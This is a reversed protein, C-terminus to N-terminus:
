CTSSLMCLACLPRRSIQFSAVTASKAPSAAAHSVARVPVLPWWDKTVTMLSLLGEQLCLSAQVMICAQSAMAPMVPCLLPAGLLAPVLLLLTNILLATAALLVGLMILRSQLEAETLNLQQQRRLSAVTQAQNPAQQRPEQQQAPGAAQAPAAPVQAPQQAANSAPQAAAAQLPAAAPAIEQQYEAAAAQLSAAALAMEQQHEEAAAQLSAAAHALEQQHEAAAAQLSAAALAMEQQHEACPMAELSALLVASSPRMVAGSLGDDSLALGERSSAALAAGSGIDSSSTSSPGAAPPFRGTQEESTGQLLQKTAANSSPRAALVASSYPDETYAPEAPAAAKSSSGRRWLRRPRPQEPSPGSSKHGSRLKALWRCCCALSNCPARTVLLFFVFGAAGSSMDVLGFLVASSASSVKWLLCM